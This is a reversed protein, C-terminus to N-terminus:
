NLMGKNHEPTNRRSNQNASNPRDSNTHVSAKFASDDEKKDDAELIMEIKAAALKQSKDQGNSNNTQKAEHSHFTQNIESLDGFELEINNSIQSIGSKSRGAIDTLNLVLAQDSKRRLIEVLNMVSIDDSITKNHPESNRQATGIYSKSLVHKPDIGIISKEESSDKSNKADQSENLLEKKDSRLFKYANFSTPKKPVAAENKPSAQKQDPLLVQSGSLSLM